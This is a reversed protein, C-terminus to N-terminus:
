LIGLMSCRPTNSSKRPHPALGDCHVWCSAVVLIVAGGPHSVIGDCPVWCSALVIEVGGPHSCSTWRLSEGWYKNPNSLLESTGM